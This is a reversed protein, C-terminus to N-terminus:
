GYGRGDYVAAIEGESMLPKPMGGVSLPRGAKSYNIRAPEKLGLDRLRNRITNPSCKFHKAMAVLTWGKTHMAELDDEPIDIKPRTMGYRTTRPIGKEDLWKAVKRESVKMRRGVGRLSGLEAYLAAALDMLQPTTM